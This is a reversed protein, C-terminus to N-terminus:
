ALILKTAGNAPGDRPVSAEEEETVLSLAAAPRQRARKRDRRCGDAASVEGAHGRNTIGGRDGRGTCGARWERVVPNGRPTQIRQGHAKKLVHRQRSRARHQLVERRDFLLDLIDILEAKTEIVAEARAILQKRSEAGEIGVLHLRESAAAKLFCEHGAEPPSQACLGPVERETVCVDRAAREQVLQAESPHVHRAPLDTLVAADIERALDAQFADRGVRPVHAIRLDRRASEVAREAIRRREGVAVVRVELNEVVHEEVPARMADLDAGVVEVQLESGLLGVVRASGEGVCTLEGAVGERIEQETIGRIRHRADSAAVLVASGVPEVQERLVVPPDAAVERDVQPERVLVVLVHSVLAIPQGRHVEFDRAALVHDCAVVVAVDVRLGVREKRENRHGVDGGSLSAPLAAEETRALHTEGRARAEREGEIPIARDEAAAVADEEVLPRVAHLGRERAVQGVEEGALDIDGRRLSHRHKLRLSMRAASGVPTTAGFMMSWAYATSYVCVHLPPRCYSSSGDVITSTEYM